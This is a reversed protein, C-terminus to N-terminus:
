LGVYIFPSWIFPQDDCAIYEESDGGVEVRKTRERLEVTAANLAEAVGGFDVRQAEANTQESTRALLAEWFRTSVEMARRDDINWLTGVVRPFGALQMTSALHVSEDLLEPALNSAAHCASLYCFQAHPLRHAALDAVTLPDKEWDQLLLHSSSPDDRLAVGHCSMHLVAIDELAPLLDAKTPQALCTVQFLLSDGLAKQLSSVEQSAFRLDLQSGPTTAMSVLTTKMPTTLSGHHQQARAANAKALRLSKFTTGYSSVILDLADTTPSNSTAAHLPFFSMIGIPMWCIRLKQGDRVALEHYVPRVVAEWLWSLIIRLNKNTQRQRSSTHIRLTKMLKNAHSVVDDLVAYRLRITRTTDKNIALADSRLSTVNIVVIFTEGAVQRMETETPPELFTSFGDLSRIKETLAAFRKGAKIREDNRLSGKVFGHNMKSALSAPADLLRSLDDFESALTPYEQKLVVLDQRTDMTLGSMIGRTAELAVIAEAPTRGAELLVAASYSGLGAFITTLHEQDARGVLRPSLTPLLEIALTAFEVACSLDQKVALTLGRYAATIRQFSSASEINSCERYRQIASNYETKHENNERFLLDYSLGLNNLFLTRSNHDDPAHKCAEELHQTAVELDTFETFSANHAIKAKFRQLHASGLHGYYKWCDGESRGIGASSTQNQVKSQELAQELVEICHQWDEENTGKKMGCRLQIAYGLTALRGPRLLTTRPSADAAADEYLSIANDLHVEDGTEQFKRLYVNALTVLSGTSGPSDFLEVTKRRSVLAADEAESLDEGSGRLEFRALLAASLNGFADAALQPKDELLAAVTLDRFYKVARDVDDPAGRLDFRELLSNALELICDSRMATTSFQSTNLANELINLTESLDDEVGRREFRYRLALAYRHLSVTRGPESHDQGESLAEQLLKIARFPHCEDSERVSQEACQLAKDLDSPSNTISFRALISTSLGSLLKLMVGQTTVRALGDEYSAISRNLLDTDGNLDYLSWLSQALSLHLTGHLNTAPTSSTTASELIEVSERLCHRAQDGQQQGAQDKLFVGLNNRYRHSEEVRNNETLKIARRLCDLAADLLAADGSSQWAGWCAKALDNLASAVAPDGDHLNRLRNECDVVHDM